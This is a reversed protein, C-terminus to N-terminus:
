PKGGLGFFVCIRHRPNRECMRALDDKDFLIMWVVDKYRPIVRPEKNTDPAPTPTPTPTPTWTPGFEVAEAHMATTSMAPIAVFLMVTVVSLVVLLYKRM